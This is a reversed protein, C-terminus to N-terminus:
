RGMERPLAPRKSHWECEFNLLMPMDLKAASAVAEQTWEAARARCEPEDYPLPGFVGGIVGITYVVLYLKM